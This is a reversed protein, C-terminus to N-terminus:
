RYSSRTKNVSLNFPILQGNIQEIWEHNNKIEKNIM